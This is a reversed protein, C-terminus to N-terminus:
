KKGELTNLEKEFQKIEKNIAKKKTNKENEIAKCEKVTYTKKRKKLTAIKKRLDRGMNILEKRKVDLEEIRKVIDNFNGIVVELEAEFKDIQIDYEENIRKKIYEEKKKAAEEIKMIEQAIKNIHDRIEEESM